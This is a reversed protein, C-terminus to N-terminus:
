AGRNDRVDNVGVGLAVAFITLATRLLDHRLPRLILALFLKV